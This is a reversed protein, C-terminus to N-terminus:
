DNSIYSDIIKQITGDQKMKNIAANIPVLLEPRSIHVRVKLESRNIVPGIEIELGRDKLIRSNKLAYFLATRDIIGADARELAVKQIQSINDGSDSRIFFESGVYGYGRVTSIVKGQLDEYKNFEFPKGVPFILVEEVTMVPDTWLSVEVQEESSRWAENVCCEIQVHGEKFRKQARKLPFPQDAALSFVIRLDLQLMIDNLIGSINNSHVIWYPSWSEDAISYKAPQSFSSVSSSLLLAFLVFQKCLKSM